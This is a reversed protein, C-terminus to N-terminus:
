ISTDTKSCTMSNLSRLRLEGEDPWPRLRHTQEWEQSVCLYFSGCLGSFSIDLNFSIVPSLCHSSPLEPISDWGSPDVRPEVVCSSHARPWSSM